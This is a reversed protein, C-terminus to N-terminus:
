KSLGYFFVKFDTSEILMTAGGGRINEGKPHLSILWYYNKGKKMTQEIENKCDNYNNYRGLSAFQICDELYHVFFRDSIQARVLYKENIYERNIKDDSMRDENIMNTFFIIGASIAKEKEENSYKVSNTSACNCFIFAIIIFLVIKLM